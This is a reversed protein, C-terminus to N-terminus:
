LIFNGWFTKMNAYNEEIKIIKRNHKEKSNLNIAIQSILVLRQKIMTIIVITM